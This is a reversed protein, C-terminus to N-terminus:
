DPPLGLSDRYATRQADRGIEETIKNWEAAAARLAPEPKEEGALARAYARELASWYREAGPIRVDTVANSHRLSAQVVGLYDRASDGSMGTKLWDSVRSMHWTRFPTVHSGVQAAAALTADKSGVHVLLDFAADASPSGTTVAALWGGSGVYPAFNISKSEAWTSTESEFVRNSGPVITFGVQNKVKSESPDQTRTALDCGDLAMAARGSLFESRVDRSAFAAMGAPGFAQIEIADELARVFAPEAVASDMTDPHFFLAPDNRRQAYAAARAVLARCGAGDGTGPEVTGADPKGDGDFDEGHFFAAVERYDSWTRPPQLRRGSKEEFKAQRAKDKFLDLRYYVLMVEGDLPVAYPTGTWSAIRDRYVPLVDEWELAALDSERLARFRDKPMTEGAWAPPFVAVDFAAAGSELSKKLEAAPMETVTAKAKAKEAWSACRARVYDAVPSNEPMAVTLTRGAFSPAAPGTAGAGASGAGAGSDSCGATVTSALLAALLAARRPGGRERAPSFSSTERCTSNM